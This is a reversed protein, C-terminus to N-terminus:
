QKTVAHPLVYTTDPNSYELNPPNSNWAVTDNITHLRDLMVRPDPSVLSVPITTDAALYAYLGFGVVDDPDFFSDLYLTLGDLVGIQVKSGLDNASITVKQNLLDVVSQSEIQEVLVAKLAPLSQDILDAIDSFPTGDHEMAIVLQGIIEPNTGTLADTLSTLRVNEFSVSGQSAPVMATYGAPISEALEFLNRNWFVQTSGPTAPRTRFGITILYPEDGSSEEIKRVDVEDVHLNWTVGADACLNNAQCQEGANCSDTGCCLQGDGGCSECTGSTNCMAGSDCPNTKCCAQGAGGCPTKIKVIPKDSSVCHDIVSLGGQSSYQNFCSGVNSDFSFLDFNQTADAGRVWIELTRADQSQRWYQDLQPLQGTASWAYWSSGVADVSAQDSSTASFFPESWTGDEAQAQLTLTDNPKNAYGSFTISTDKRDISQNNLPYAM